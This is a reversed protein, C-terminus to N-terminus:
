RSKQKFNINKHSFNFIQLGTALDMRDSNMTSQNIVIASKRRILQNGYYEIYIKTKTFNNMCSAIFLGTAFNM